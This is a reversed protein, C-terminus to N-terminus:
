MPPPRDKLAGQRHLPVVPIEALTQISQKTSATKPQKIARSMKEIQNEKRGLSPKRKQILFGNSCRM